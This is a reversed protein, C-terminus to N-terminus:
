KKRDHMFFFQPQAKLRLVDKIGISSASRRPNGKETLAELDPNDIIAHHIDDDHAITENYIGQYFEEVRVSDGSAAIWRPIDDYLKERSELRGAADFLHVKGEQSPDYALMELGARGFHIQQGSNDHLVRNYVQRARYMKSFHILWYRWGGPNNISFPSHFPAIGQFSKYVLQEALGLFHTKSIPQQLQEVDAMDMDFRRLQDKLGVSDRRKLFGLLASIFFTYFVEVSPSIQMIRKLTSPEVLSHGCQDLNFLINRYKEAVLQEEIEPYVQEFNMKHVRVELSLFPCNDKAQQQMESVHHRLANNADDAPDNLVLLCFIKLPKMGDQSRKLNLDISAKMLEEIFIMPSGPEGNLYRGGGAFGDVVALRFREQHVMGCRVHIYRRFYEGLIVHKKRTHDALVVGDKWPYTKGVM